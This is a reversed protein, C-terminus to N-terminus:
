TMEVNLKSKIISALASEHLAKTIGHEECLEVTAELRSKAHVFWDRVQTNTGKCAAWGAMEKQRNELLFLPNGYNAKLYALVAEEDKMEQIAKQTPITIAAKLETLSESVSLAAAKKYIIFEKEFEYITLTDPKGTFVPVKLLGRNVARKSKEGWVGFKQRWKLMDQRACVLLQRIAGAQELIASEDEYLECEQLQEAAAEGSHLHADVEDIIIKLYESAEYLHEEEDPVDERFEKIKAALAMSQESWTLARIRARKLVEAPPGSEGSDGGRQEGAAQQEAAQEPRRGMSVMQGEFYLMLDTLTKKCAAVSERLEPTYDAARQKILFIHGKRLVKRLEEVRAVMADLREWNLELGQYPAMDEEVIMVAEEIDALTSAVKDSESGGSSNSNNIEENDGAMASTVRSGSEEPLTSLPRPNLLTEDFTGTTSWNDSVVTNDLLPSEQPDWELSGVLVEPDSVKEPDAGESGM